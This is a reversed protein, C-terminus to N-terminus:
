RNQDNKGLTKQYFIKFSKDQYM